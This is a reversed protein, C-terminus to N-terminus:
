KVIEKYEEVVAKMDFDSLIGLIVTDANQRTIDSTKIINMIFRSLRNNLPESLGTNQAAFIEKLVEKVTEHTEKDHKPVMRLMSIANQEIIKIQNPMM